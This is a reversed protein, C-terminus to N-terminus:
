RRLEAFRDTRQSVPIARGQRIRLERALLHHIGYNGDFEVVQSITNLPLQRHRRQLCAKCRDCLCQLQARVIMRVRLHAGQEGARGIHRGGVNGIRSRAQYM